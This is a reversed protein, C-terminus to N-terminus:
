HKKLIAKESQTLFKRLRKTNFSLDFPIRAPPMKQVEATIKWHIMKPGVQSTLLQHISQNYDHIEVGMSYGCARAIESFSFHKSFSSQGGTSEYCGNDIVVHWLEADSQLGISAISQLRMLLAGDGDIVIVRKRSAKQIGLGILSACGMSGQTYFSSPTDRLSFLERSLYGTSSVIVDDESIFSLLRSLAERRHLKPRSGEIFSFLEKKHNNKLSMSSSPNQLHSVESPSEDIFLNIPTAMQWLCQSLGEQSNKENLFHIKIGELNALCDILKPDWKHHLADNVQGRGSIYMFCPTASPLSLSTLPNLCNGLGASQLFLFTTKGALWTGHALAVADGENFVPIMPPFAEFATECFGTYPVGSSFTYNKLNLM